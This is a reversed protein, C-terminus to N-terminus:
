NNTTPILKFLTDYMATYFMVNHIKHKTRYFPVYGSTQLSKDVAISVIYKTRSCLLLVSGENMYYLTNFDFPDFNTFEQKFGFLNLYTNYKRKKDTSRLPLTGLPPCNSVLKTLTTQASEIETGILKLFKSEILKDFCDM